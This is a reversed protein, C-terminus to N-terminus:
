RCAPGAPMAWPVTASLQGGAVRPEGFGRSNGSCQNVAAVEMPAMRNLDALSLAVPRSVHGEIELRYTQPDIALPLDALHYRVFVADNPTVAGRDFVSFPTARQPPRSTLPSM